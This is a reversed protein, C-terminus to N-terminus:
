CKKKRAKPKDKPFEDIIGIKGIVQVHTKRDEAYGEAIALAGKLTYFHGLLTYARDKEHYM